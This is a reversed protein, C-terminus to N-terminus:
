ILLFFCFNHGSRWRLPPVHCAFVVRECHAITMSTAAAAMSCLSGSSGRLCGLVNQSSSFVSLSPFPQPLPSPNFLSKPQAPISPIPKPRCHHHTTSPNPVLFQSPPPSLCPFIRTSTTTLVSPFHPRTTAERLSVGPFRGPTLLSAPFHQATLHNSKTKKAWHSNSPLSCTTKQSRDLKPRSM